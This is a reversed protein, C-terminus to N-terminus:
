HEMTLLPQGGSSSRSRWDDFAQPPGAFVAAGRDLALVWDMRPVLSMDHTVWLTTRGRTARWLIAVLDEATAPDLGTSPEDLLWIRGDRLLARALALRQREGGSFLDGGRRVLTDYGDPLREILSQAQAAAVAARLADEGAGPTGLTLNERVSLGPFVSGQFVVSMQRRISEVTYEPLPRGDLRVTGSVPDGLRLVLRLLTSKGAGNPGVIAIRHGVPLDCSLRDLSMKRGTRVRRPARVSVEVFSIEGRLPPAEIADPRDVIQPDRETIRALRDACAYTRGLRAAQYAFDALPARLAAAYSIFLVLDGPTLQGSRVAESGLWLALAIAFAFVTEVRVLLGAALRQVKLEQRLSRDNRAGFRPLATSSAAGFAQLERISRLEGAVLSALKGEKRRQQRAARAIRAGRQRMTVFALFGGAALVLGLPVSVWLLVALTAAFLGLTQFVRVLIGNVGRRLRATDYVVRTLLEGPERSEHFTLSQRLLHAFLAARFRHVVRNGVGTVRLRQAYEAAAAALSVGVFLACLAAIGIAPARAVFSVVAQSDQAGGLYDLIWKLPWPRAVHLVVATAALLAGVAIPRGEGAAHPRLLSVIRRLETADRRAPM